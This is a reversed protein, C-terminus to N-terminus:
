NSYWEEDRNFKMNKLVNQVAHLSKSFLKKKLNAVQMNTIKPTQQFTSVCNAESKPFIPLFNLQNILWSMLQVIKSM